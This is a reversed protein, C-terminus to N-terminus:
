VGIDLTPVSVTIPDLDIPPTTGAPGGLVVQVNTLTITPESLTLTRETTDLVASQVSAGADFRLSLGLAGVLEGDCTLSASGASITSGPLDLTAGPIEVFRLEPSMEAPGVTLTGRLDVSPTVATVTCTSMGFLSFENTVTQPEVVLEIPYTGGAFLDEPTPDAAGDPTPACASAVLAVLTAAAVLAGRVMRGDMPVRM